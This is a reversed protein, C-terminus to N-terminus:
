DGISIDSITLQSSGSRSIVEYKVNDAVIKNVSSSSKRMWRIIPLPTGSAICTFSASSGVKAELVKSIPSVLQVKPPDLIMSCNFPSQLGVVSHM